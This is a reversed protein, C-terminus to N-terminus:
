FPSIQFPHMTLYGNDMSLPCLQTKHDILRHDLKDIWEFTPKKQEVLACKCRNVSDDM